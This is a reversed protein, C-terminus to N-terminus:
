SLQRRLCDSCVSAGNMLDAEFLPGRCTLCVLVGDADVSDRGLAKADQDPTSEYHTQGPGILSPGSESESERNSPSDSDLNLSVGSETSESPSVALRIAPIPEGFGDLRGEFVEAHSHKKTKGTVDVTVYGLEVLRGLAVRREKASGAKGSGDGTGNLAKVVARESVAETQALLFASIRHMIPLLVSSSHAAEDVSPLPANTSIHWTTEEGATSDLVFLGAQKGNSIARLGGNRDKEINLYVEGRVGPAPMTKITALLYSGDVSRKKATGGIAYGSSRADSGKPLHDIVIVCAGATHALPKVVGRLARTIDDNDVSSLGLMPVIEGLSDVVAMGPRWALMDSVFEVLGATDEPQYVRFADPDAVAEASAGLKMLRVAIETSGNHDVDLYVAREGNNLAEAVACMALWSKATEPDGFVGNVRGRYFLAGNGHERELCTPAEIEPLSGTLIWSLDEWGNGKAELDTQVGPAAEPQGLLGPASGVAPLDLGSLKTDCWEGRCDELPREGAAVIRLAGEYIRWWEGEAERGRDQGVTDMFADYLATMASTVGGHGQQGLQLVALVRDRCLDHRSGDDGTRLSDITRLVKEEVRACEGETLWPEALEGLDLNLHEVRPTPGTDQVGNTLGEIWADPLAPMDDPSPIANLAVAGDPQLWRYVRGEPHLSPWTVAYRHGRHIMEIGPGVVSPWALGVPVTYFRIGSVGDDRSTVRWTAPLAGWREEAALLTAHGNKEGYADVDIGVIHHPMRLGINGTAQTQLWQEIHEPLPDIDAFRKGTFGVPVPAKQGVPLPLVGLWGQARYAWVTLGYPQPADTQPM